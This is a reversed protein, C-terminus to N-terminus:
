KAHQDRKVQAIYDDIITELLNLPLAGHSLFQSHFHRQDFLAQLQQRGKERLSTFKLMGYRYAVAQGPWSGYRDVEAIIDSLALASNDALLSIAEARTMNGWHLGTDIVLRCARLMADSLRGIDIVPDEYFGMSEGFYEAFHAWGEIFATWDGTMRFYPLESLENALSIQMHHGPVAEHLFLSPLLFRTVKTGYTNMFFVGPHTCEPDAQEYYGAPSSEAVADPV